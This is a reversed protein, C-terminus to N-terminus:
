QSTSEDFLALKKVARSEMEDLTIIRGNEDVIQNLGINLLKGRDRALGDLVSKFLDGNVREGRVSVYEVMWAFALMPALGRVTVGDETQMAQCGIDLILGNKLRFKQSAVAHNENRMIETGALWEGKRFAPEIIQTFMSGFQARSVLKKEEPLLHDYILDPEARVISLLGAKAVREFSTYHLYAQVIVLIALVALIAILVKVWTGKGPHAISDSSV